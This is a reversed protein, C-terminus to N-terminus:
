FPVEADFLVKGVPAPRQDLAWYADAWWAETNQLSMHADLVEDAALIAQLARGLKLDACSEELEAAAATLTDCVKAAVELKSHTTKLDDLATLWQDSKLQALQEERASAEAQLALFARRAADARDGVSLAHSELALQWPRVYGKAAQVRIRCGSPQALPMDKVMDLADEAIKIRLGAKRCAEIFVRDAKGQKDLKQGFGYAAALSFTFKLTPFAKKLSVAIQQDSRSVPQLRDGELASHLATGLVGIRGKVPKRGRLADQIGFLAKRVEGTNTGRELGALQAAQRAAAVMLHGQAPQGARTCFAAFAQRVARERVRVKHIPLLQRVPLKTLAEGYIPGYRKYAALARVEDARHLPAEFRKEETAEAAIIDALREDEDNGVLADLKHSKANTTVWLETVRSLREADMRTREALKPRRLIIRANARVAAAIFRPVIPLVRVRPEPVESSWCDSALCVMKTSLNIAQQPKGALGATLCPLTELLVKRTYRNAGRKVIINKRGKPLMKSFLSKELNLLLWDYLEADNGTTTLLRSRASAIAAPAGPARKEDVLREAASPLEAALKLQVWCLWRVGAMEGNWGTRRPKEGGSLHPLLKNLQWLAGDWAELLGGFRTSYNFAIKLAIPAANRALMDRAFAAEAETGEWCARALRLTEADSLRVYDLQVQRLLSQFVDESEVPRIIPLLQQHRSTWHEQKTM